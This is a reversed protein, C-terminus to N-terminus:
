IHGTVIESLISVIRASTKRSKGYDKWAFALVAVFIIKWMSELENNCIIRDNSVM